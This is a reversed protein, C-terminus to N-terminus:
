DYEKELDTGRNNLGTLFKLVTFFVGQLWLVIFHEIDPTIKVFKVGLLIIKVVKLKNMITLLRLDGNDVELWLLHVWLSYGIM